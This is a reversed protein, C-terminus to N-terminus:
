QDIQVVITRALPHGIAVAGGYVNVKAADLGLLTMNALAAVSFAENIEYFEIEDVLLGAHQIAKPIALAPAITFREPEREAEGWGLIKAIPNIGLEKMREESILVAAAAGDNLPAANHATITGDTKFAPRKVASTGEKVPITIEEDQTILRSSKGHDTKLRIPSIGAFRGAKSAALAKRYSENAYDDQTRRDIHMESACSEGHVGVHRNQLADIFGDKLISDILSQDGLRIHRSERRTAHSPVTTVYHPANSMSDTGGAIIVTGNGLMISQTGLIIAEMSSACVKNITTCIPRHSLGAAIACQRAPGQGLGSSLVNGFFVEDVDDSNLSCRQVAGKPVKLRVETGRFDLLISGKIALAGLRPCVWNANKYGCCYLSTICQDTGYPTTWNTTRRAVSNTFRAVISPM